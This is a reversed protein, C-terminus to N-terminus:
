GSIKYTYRTSVRTGNPQLADFLVVLNKDDLTMITFLVGRWTFQTQAVNVVFKGVDGPAVYKSPTSQIIKSDGTYNFYIRQDLISSDISKTTDVWAYQAQGAPVIKVESRVQAWAKGGSWLLTTVSDAVKLSVSAQKGNNIALTFTTTKKLPGTDLVGNIGVIVGNFTIVTQANNGSVLWKVTSGTNFPVLSDLLTFYQIVGSPPSV